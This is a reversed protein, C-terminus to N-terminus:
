GSSARRAGARAAARDGRRGHGRDLQTACARGPLRATATRAQGSPWGPPATSCSPAPGRRGALRDDALAAIPDRGEAACAADLQARIEACEEATKNVTNYEDAFRAALAISRPGGRGGVILPPRSSSRSRSRTSDRGTTSARSAFPGDGWQRRRDALQEELLTWASARDAPVPLRLGRARGRELRHRDRARRPRRLRPRRHGVVKALESPHRFTAPSVLTGLRLKATVAASRTSRRGPTSRAASARPRVVSLYHDSRFLTEIGHAECAGALARWDEWTVDEQGEIM